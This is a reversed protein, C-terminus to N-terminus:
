EQLGTQKGHFSFTGLRDKCAVIQGVGLFHCIGVGAGGGPLCALVLSGVKNQSINMFFTEELIIETM